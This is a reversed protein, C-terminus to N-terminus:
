TSGSFRSGGPRGTRMPKRTGGPLGVTSTFIIARAGRSTRHVEGAHDRVASRVLLADPRNDVIVQKGWRMSLWQALTRTITDLGGGAAYPTIIQVPRFPFSQL